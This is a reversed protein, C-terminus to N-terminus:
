GSPLLERIKSLLAEAAFPKQLFADPRVDDAFVQDNAENRSTLIIVPISKYQDNGKLLSCVSFGNIHPLMVDLIILDPALTKAMELGAAGDGATVVEYGSATLRTVLIDKIAPDDEVVLIKQSM